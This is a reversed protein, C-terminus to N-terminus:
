EDDVGMLKDDGMVINHILGRIQEATDYKGRIIMGQLKIIASKEGLEILSDIQYQKIM